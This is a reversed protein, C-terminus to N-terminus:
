NLKRSLAGEPCARVCYGCGDCKDDFYCDAKGREESRDPPIVRIKANLPNFAQNWKFSCLLACRNCGVCKSSDFYIPLDCWLCRRSENIADNESFGLEINDFSSLRQELSLTPMITRKGIPIGRPLPPLNYESFKNSDDIDGVSDLYKDIAVAARKGDAIAEVVSSPGRAVDGAVFVKKKVIALTDSNSEIIGNKNLKLGFKNPIDPIEGISVIINDYNFSFSKKLLIIHRRGDCDTNGLKTRNCTLILKGNKENIYEPTAQFIFKVGEYLAENVEDKSAPMEFKSRRYIITVEKAGLRLATRASDIASNGGGIVAVKNGLSVARGLNVNRLFNVGEIVRPHDEGQIGLKVSCHAGIAVLVADYGNNFLEDLSEIKINVSIKVGMEKVIEIEKNLIDKPLRYEPIGVRLMGGAVPLAEFVKVSYGWKALYYAATLGAPGSGIIAIRKDTRGKLNNTIENIIFSKDFSQECVFRKLANIAIFDNSHSKKCGEECPRFCVYSLTFPFPTKALIVKFAEKFKRQTILRIYQPINIRLPCCEECPAIKFNKNKMIIEGRM